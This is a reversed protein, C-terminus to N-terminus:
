STSNMQVSHIYKFPVAGKDTEKERLFREIGKELRSIWEVLGENTVFGDICIFFYAMVGSNVVM